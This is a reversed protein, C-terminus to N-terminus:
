TIREEKWVAPTRFIQISWDPNLLHSFKVTSVDIYTLLFPMSILCSKESSITNAKWPFPNVIGFILDIIFLSFYSVNKKTKLSRIHRWFPDGDESMAVRECSTSHRSTPYYNHWKSRFISNRTLNFGSNKLYSNFSALAVKANHKSKYAGFFITIITDNQYSLREYQPRLWRICPLARSGTLFWTSSWCDANFFM